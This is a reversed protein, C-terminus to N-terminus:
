VMWMMNSSKREKTKKSCNERNDSNTDSSCCFIHSKNPIQNECEEGIKKSSEGNLFASDEVISIYKEPKYKKGITEIEPSIKKMKTFMWFHEMKIDDIDRHHCNCADDTSKSREFNEMGIPILFEVFFDSPGEHTKRHNESDISDIDTSKESEIRPIEDIAWEENKMFDPHHRDGIAPREYDSLRM